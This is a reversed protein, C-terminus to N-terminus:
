LCKSLTASLSIDQNINQILTHNDKTKVYLLTLAKTPVEELDSVQYSPKEMVVPKGTEFDMVRDYLNGDM